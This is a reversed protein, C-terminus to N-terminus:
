ITFVERGLLDNARRAVATAVSGITLPQKGTVGTYWNNCCRRYEWSDIFKQDRGQEILALAMSTILPHTMLEAIENQREKSQM